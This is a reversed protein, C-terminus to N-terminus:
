FWFDKNMKYHTINKKGVHYDLIDLRKLKKKALYITKTSCNVWNALERDTIFIEKSFDRRCHRFHFFCLWLLISKEIPSLPSDIAQIPFQIYNM